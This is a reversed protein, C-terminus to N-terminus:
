SSRGVSRSPGAGYGAEDAARVIGVLKAVYADLAHREKILAHGAKGMRDAEEPRALLYEIAARMARPDAPPVYLGQEGDRLVDVQGRTRTVIVAKAMAMAEVIATVGADYDLDQLPVVV